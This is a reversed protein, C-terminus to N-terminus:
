AELSALYWNIIYNMHLIDLVEFAYIERYQIHTHM